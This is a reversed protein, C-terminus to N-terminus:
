VTSELRRGGFNLLLCLHLGTAKLYNICQETHAPDLTRSTKPEVVVMGEMVLDAIDNGVTFGGHWGAIGEQQAALLGAERLEYALANEHGKKM